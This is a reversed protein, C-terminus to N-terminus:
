KICACLFYLVNMSIMVTKTLMSNKISLIWIYLIVHRETISSNSSSQFKVLDIGLKKGWDSWLKEWDFSAYFDTLEFNNKEKGRCTCGMMPVPRLHRSNPQHNAEQTILGGSWWGRLHKSHGGARCGGLGVWKRGPMGEVCGLFSNLSWQSRLPGKYPGFIGTGHNYQHRVINNPVTNMIM